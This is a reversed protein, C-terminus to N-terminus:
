WPGRTVNQAQEAAEGVKEEALMAAFAQLARFTMEQLAEARHQPDALANEISAVGLSVPLAGDLDPTAQIAFRTASEDRVMAAVGVWRPRGPLLYRVANVVCTFCTVHQRPMTSARYPSGPLLARMCGSCVTPESASQWTQEDIPWRQEM